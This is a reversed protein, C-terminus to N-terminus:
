RDQSLWRCVNPNEFLSEECRVCIGEKSCILNILFLRRTDNCDLVVSCSGSENSGVVSCDIWRAHANAILLIFGCWALLTSILTFEERQSEFKM